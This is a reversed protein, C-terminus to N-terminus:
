RDKAPDDTKIQNQIYLIKGNKFLVRNAPVIANKSKSPVIVRLSVM